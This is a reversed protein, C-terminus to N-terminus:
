SSQIAAEFINIAKKRSQETVHSYTDLTIKIDSHGLLAQVDKINAGNAVLTTAYTHRLCHFHFHSIDPLNKQILKNLWKLTQTTLLEGGPKTCVFSVPNLTVTDDADEYPIGHCFRSKNEIGNEEFRTYIQCHSKGKIDNLHYFHLQYLKGYHFREKLQETHARKLISALTPGFDITRPKGSKPVKLEWCKNDVDYYMSRRVYICNSDFDIDDWTLGCVEGARMGTYYAIQIPLAFFSNHEDSELYDIIKLYEDNTITPVKTGQDDGFLSVEKKKKRKKVYQMLNERLFHKPYVAYKFINNLVLFFKRMTSTAYAKQILKGDDDYKGFYLTDVYHQIDECTVNKLQLKGFDSTAINKVTNKYNKKGNTTLDSNEIESDYWLYCLESITISGPNFIANHDKYDIIAQNLLLQTEAKTKGGKFEHLKWNGDSDQVRFRYYWQKGKKRVSGTQSSNLIDM